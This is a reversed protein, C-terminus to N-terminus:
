GIMQDQETFVVFAVLVKYLQNGNCTYLSKVVSRSYIHFQQFLIVATQYTHRGTKCSLYRTEKNIAFILRSLRYSQLVPIDETLTIVEYLYLIVAYLILEPYKRKKIFEGSFRAYRKNGCVVAM